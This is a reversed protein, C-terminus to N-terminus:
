LSQFFTNFEDFGKPIQYKKSNEYAFDVDPKATKFNSMNFISVPNLIESVIGVDTAIIPTKSVASELVAAPGGEVRSAVIYLDLINYLDNLSSFDVMEFYSYNINEKKLRSIIYERRKGALVVHLRKVTTNLHKAIELYQDPGKSLKPRKYGKKETDRQFSGISYSEIPIGYKERLKTKDNIQYFTDQNIWFPIYTISKSTLNQLTKSTKKSIVHYIDVYQDLKYFERKESGKFKDIDIHHITCIIKKEKLIKTSISSLNWPAIIWVIDADEINDTVYDSNYSCWEQIFRDVIWNEDAKNIYIYNM